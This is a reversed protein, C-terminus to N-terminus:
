LIQPSSRFVTQYRRSELAGFAKESYEKSTDGLDGIAQGYDLAFCIPINKLTTDKTLFHFISQENINFLHMEDVIIYDYGNKVRERRWVPANLRAMAEMTVDDIDFENPLDLLAQYNMFLSFM